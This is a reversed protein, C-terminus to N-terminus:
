EYDNIIRTANHKITKYPIKITLDASPKMEPNDELMSSSTDETIDETENDITKDQQLIDTDSTEEISNFNNINTLNSVKEMNEQAKKYNYSLQIDLTNKLFGEKIEFPNLKKSGFGAPLKEQKFTKIDYIKSRKLGTYNSERYNEVKFDDKELNEEVNEKNIKESDILKIKVKVNNHYAAHKVSEIISIYSDELRVYKGVIGITVEKEDKDGQEEIIKELQIIFDIAPNTLKKAKEIMREAEVQLQLRKYTEVMETAESESEMKDDTLARAIELEQKALEKFKESNEPCGRESLNAYIKANDIHAYSDQYELPNLRELLLM